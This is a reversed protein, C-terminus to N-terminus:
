QWNGRAGGDSASLDRQHSLNSVGFPLTETKITMGDKMFVAKVPSSTNPNTGEDTLGDQKLFEDTMTYVSRAVPVASFPFVFLTSEDLDALNIIQDAETKDNDVQGTFTHNYPTSLMFHPVIESQYTTYGNEDTSVTEGPLAVDTMLEAMGFRKSVGVNNTYDIVNRTYSTAEGDLYQQLKQHIIQPMTDGSTNNRMYAVSDTPSSAGYLDTYANLTVYGPQYTDIFRYEFVYTITDGPQAGGYEETSDPDIKFQTPDLRLELKGNKVTAKIDERGNQETGNDGVRIKAAPCYIGNKYAGGRIIVEGTYPKGDPTLFTLTADSIERLRLNNCPYLQLSAVDREGTELDSPFLTGVYTKGEKESKAMIPEFIGDPEYVALEGNDNSSLTRKEGKGNTYVVDTKVAPNFQFVYLQDKLTKTTVDFSSAIGTNAHTATITVKEGEGTENKGVLLFDTAPAYSTYSYNRVDSYIGGQKYDVSVTSPDSSEWQMKDSLMGYVAEGYNISVIKQLSMDTRLATFDDFNLQYGDGTVGYNGMKGHNDMEITTGDVYYGSGGTTGGIEGATVEEVIQHLIDPNYVTLLMSDLSWDDNESNRAYITITYAEKLSEPKNVSFPIIGGSVPIRESVSEGSKQITYEVESGDTEYGIQPINGATVYYSELQNLKVSAPAQEAILYATASLDNKELTDKGDVEGGYYQTSIEVAYAGANTIQGGAITIHTLTEELTSTFDGTWIPEGTKKYQGSNEATEEANYLKVTFTTDKELQANRATVNSSFLIDTDAYTMTPRIQSYKSINLFPTKGELVTLKVTTAFDYAKSDSGNGVHLTFEVEGPKGTLEIHGVGNEDMEIVKAIAEDWGGM